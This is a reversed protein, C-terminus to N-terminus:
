YEGDCYWWEVMIPVAPKPVLIVGYNTAPRLRVGIGVGTAMLFSVVIPAFVLKVIKIYGM